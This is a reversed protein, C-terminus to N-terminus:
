KKKFYFAQYTLQPDLKEFERRDCGFTVQHFRFPRQASSHYGTVLVLAPISEPDAGPATGALLVPTDNDAMIRAIEAPDSTPQAAVSINLLPALVILDTVSLAASADVLRRYADGGRAGVDSPTITTAEKWSLM